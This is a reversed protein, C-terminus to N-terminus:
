QESVADQGVWPDAVFGTQEYRFGDFNGNSVLLSFAQASVNAFHKGARFQEPSSLGSDFSINDLTAKLNARTLNPGVAQLAKVLLEMGDYGGEVFQNEYDASSNTHGMDSVYGSVAPNTDFPPIPPNFSTWVWFHTNCPSPCNQAFGTGFDHTFLTQPGSVGVAKGSTGLYGGDKVWQKATDPELLLAVFDVGDCKTNFTQVDNSYSNQGAVIPYDCDSNLQGGLRQVAGQFAANGEVGFRYQQDYVIAFTRAGRAYANKAIIHMLSNTSTSVPWVWPDTYQDIIMGDTGVVPIGARDIDGGAISKHLGESSPVVALAFYGDQIFSRLYGQGTTPDWGDDVLTLNLQRGCIGGSRNAQNKVALMGFEVDGLFSTGIGHKVVTSALKIENGSVGTDTSGGNQGAACKLSKGGAAVAQSGGGGGSVAPNQAGGSQSSADAGNAAGNSGADTGNDTGGVTVSRAQNGATPAAVQQRGLTFTSLGAILIVLAAATWAAWATGIPPAPRRRLQPRADEDPHTADNM